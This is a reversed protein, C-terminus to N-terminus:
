YGTDCHHCRDGTGVHGTGLPRHIGNTSHCAGPGTFSASNSIAALFHCLRHHPVLDTTQTALM